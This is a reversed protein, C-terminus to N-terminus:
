NKVYKYISGTSVIYYKGEEGTEPLTDVHVVTDDSNSSSSFLIEFRKLEERTMNNLRKIREM